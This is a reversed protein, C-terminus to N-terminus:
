SNDWIIFEQQHAINRLEKRINGLFDCFIWIFCNSFGLKRLHEKGKKKTWGIEIAIKDLASDLDHIVVRKSHGTWDDHVDIITDGADAIAEFTSIIEDTSFSHNKQDVWVRKELAIGASPGLEYGKRRLLEESKRIGMSNLGYKKAFRGDPKKYKEVSTYEAINKYFGPGKSGIPKVKCDSFYLRLLFNIQESTLM